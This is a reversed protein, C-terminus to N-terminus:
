DIAFLLLSSCDLPKAQPLFYTANPTGGAERAFDFPVAAAIPRAPHGRGWSAQTGAHRPCVSILKM